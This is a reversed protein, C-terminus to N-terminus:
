VFQADFWCDASGITLTPGTSSNCIFIGADFKRGYRGWDFAFNSSASVLLIATPIAGNAPLSVSDFLQIFQASVKSNYGSLGFLRGPAAKIVLSAAYAPTTSNITEPAYVPARLADDLLDAIEELNTVKVDTGQPDDLLTQVPADPPANTM